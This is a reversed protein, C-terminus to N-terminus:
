IFDTESWDPTICCLRLVGDGNKTLAGSGVFRPAIGIAHGDTDIGVGNAGLAIDRTGFNNFFNDNDDTARLIGGDISVSATGTGAFFGSTELVAFNGPLGLMSLTGSATAASAGLYVGTPARVLGGDEITLSGVGYNGLNINYATVVWSSGAGSVTVSGNSGPGAGIYGQNSTVKAGGEINLTGLGYSGITLQGMNDWRGGSRVIAYGQNSNGVIGDNSSATAGDEITLNGIGSSGINLRESMTWSSGDGTLLVTGDGSVDSGLEGNLSVVQAGDAITMSGTAGYGIFLDSNADIDGVVLSDTDGSLTVSQAHAPSPAGLALTLVMAPLAASSLLMRRVDPGREQGTQNFAIINALRNM